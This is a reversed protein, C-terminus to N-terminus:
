WAETDSDPDHTATTGVLAHDEWLLVALTGCHPCYLERIHNPTVERIVVGEAGCEPCFKLEGQSM